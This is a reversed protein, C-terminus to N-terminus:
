ESGVSPALFSLRGGALLRFLVLSNRGSGPGSVEGGAVPGGSRAGHISLGLWTCTSGCRCPQGDPWQPSSRMAWSICQVWLGWAQHLRDAPPLSLEVVGAARRPLVRAASAWTAKGARAAWGQIRGRVLERGHAAGPM